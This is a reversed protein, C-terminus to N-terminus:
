SVPTVRESLIDREELFISNLVASRKNDLKKVEQKQVVDILFTIQRSNYVGYNFIM